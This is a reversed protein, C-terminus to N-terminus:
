IVGLDTKDTSLCHINYRVKALLVKQPDLSSIGTSWARYSAYGMGAYM